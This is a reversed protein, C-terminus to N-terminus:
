VSLTLEYEGSGMMSVSSAFFTEFLRVAYEMDRAGATEYPSHMALQPLGIDATNLAVQSNSINGLTSGGPMDSRNLFEQYPVNAQECLCRMVAASVADTTYKQNASHKIVIGGNLYPRNTPDTKDAYNPHVAHANDASIMFSHALKRLYDEETGGTSGIIRRLTDTLFTSAAGQKTGSGVEENDFVCCVPASSRDPLDESRVDRLARVSAYACELDDLRPASIFENEAGWVCGPMRNYLLLEAALISEPSIEATEAILTRFDTKSDAMRFLPLMDKQINYKYGDNAERNMHIALSPLMLVDRGIDVLRTQLRNGNRVVVRGAASLPRDFWPACLLGGYKEVNLKVYTGDVTMEPSEKIRLAPSDGHSAAIQFGTLIQGPLAFAILASQNRTVFYRGGMNLKWPAAESLETYGADRLMESLERVAHFATPSKRIFEFLEENITQKM